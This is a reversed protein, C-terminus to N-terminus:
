SPTAAPASCNLNALNKSAMQLHQSLVPLQGAAFQRVQASDASVAEHDFTHVDLAHLAYIAPAYSCDFTGGQTNSWIHILNQQPSGAPASTTIGLGQDLAQLQRPEKGHDTVMRQGFSRVAASAGRTAALHGTTVEFQAGQAAQDLFMRDQTSLPGAPSQATATPGPPPPGGPAPTAAHAAAPLSALAACAAAAIGTVFTTRM